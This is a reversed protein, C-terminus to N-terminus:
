FLRRFFSSIGELFRFFFNRPTTHPPSPPRSPLPERISKQEPSPVPAPVLEKAPMKPIAPVAKQPPLPLTQTPTPIPIPTPTPVLVPAPVIGSKPESGKSTYNGIFSIVGVNTLTKTQSSPTDCGEVDQWMITYTGPPANEKSWINGEGNLLMGQGEISFTARSSNSGVHIGSLLKSTDISVTGDCYTKPPPLLPPKSGVKIYQGWASGEGSVVTRYLIGFKLVGGPAPPDYEPEAAITIAGPAPTQYGAVEGWVVTYNGFPVREKEWLNSTNGSTNGNYTAPGTIIFPAHPPHSFDAGEFDARLSIKTPRLEINTTYTFYDFGAPLEYEKIYSGSSISFGQLPKFVITYKKTPETSELRWGKFPDGPRGAQIPPDAVLTTEAKSYMKSGVQVTFDIDQNANIYIIQHNTQAFSWLAPSCLAGIFFLLTIIKQIMKKESKKYPKRM